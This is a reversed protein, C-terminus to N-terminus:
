YLYVGFAICVAWIEENEYEEKAMRDTQADWFTRCGMRIGAGKNEGIIVQVAIKYRDMPLEKLRNKVTKAIHKTLKNVAEGSPNYKKDSLEQELVERIVKKVQNPKFMRKFPPRIQYNIPAEGGGAKSEGDTGSGADVGATAM